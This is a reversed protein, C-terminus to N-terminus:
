LESVPSRHAVWACSKVPVTVAFSGISQGASRGIPSTDKSLSVTQDGVARFMIRGRSRSWDPPKLREVSIWQAESALTWNWFRM